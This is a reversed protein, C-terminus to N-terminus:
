RNDYASISQRVITAAVMRVPESSDVAGDILLDFAVGRGVEHKACLLAVARDITERPGMAEIVEEDSQFMPTGTEIPASIRGALTRPLAKAHWVCPPRLLMDLSGFRGRCRRQRPRDKVSARIGATGRKSLIRKTPPRLWDM